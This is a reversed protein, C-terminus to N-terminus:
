FDIPAYGPPCIRSTTGFREIDQLVKSIRHESEQSQASRASLPDARRKASASSVPQAKHGIPDSVGRPTANLERSARSPIAPDTSTDKVIIDDMGKM